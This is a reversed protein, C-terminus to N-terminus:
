SATTAEPPAAVLAEDEEHQSPPGDPPTAIPAGGDKGAPRTPAWADCVHWLPPGVPPGTM